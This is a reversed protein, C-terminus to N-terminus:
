AVRQKRHAAANPCTAFHSVYREEDAAPEEGAALYHAILPGEFALRRLVINGDPRPEPDLPMPQGQETKVWRIPQECSKCANM